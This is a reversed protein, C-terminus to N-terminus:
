NFPNYSIKSYKSCSLVYEPKNPRPFIFKLFEKLNKSDKYKKIIYNTAM